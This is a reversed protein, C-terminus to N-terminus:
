HNKLFKKSLKKIGTSENKDIHKLLQIFENKIEPFKNTLEHILKLSYYRVAPPNKFDEVASFCFNAIKGLHDENTINPIENICIHLLERIISKDKIILLNDILQDANKYFLKPHNKCCHYIVRAARKSYQKNETLCFQIIEYFQKENDGIKQSVLLILGKSSDVLIKTFDTNSSKELM